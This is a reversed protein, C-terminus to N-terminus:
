TAAGVTQQIRARLADVETIGTHPGALRHLARLDDAARRSRVPGADDLAQQGITAAERPDGQRMTLAALKTRSIARSRAFEPEHHQVSYRFRDAAETKLTTHMAVDYLAHATDGHHQAADYFHMWSPDESPDSQAFAEDAAGVAALTDQARVPGFKALARARVTHLMAWETPTLRDARVLAMEVYTLGDDPQGCWIEQRAMSSLLMARQHWNGGVETCQLAFAFRRRADDHEYADFLMFAVVGALQAMATYLDAHMQRPCNLKLLRAVRRLKDDAIERAVAGGHANDWHEFLDAVEVVHAIHERGLHPPLEDTRSSTLLELTPTGFVETGMAPGVSTLLRLRNLDQATAPHCTRPDYFGIEEDSAVGLVTRLAARYEECPRRIVSNELKGVYNANFPSYSAQQPGFLLDSVLDALEARSMREGPRTPSPLRERALRLLENPM